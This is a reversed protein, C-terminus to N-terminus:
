PADSAPSSVGRIARWAAPLFFLRLALAAGGEAFHQSVEWREGNVLGFLAYLMFLGGGGCFAVAGATSVLAPNPLTTVGRLRSVRRALVFLILVVAGLAG